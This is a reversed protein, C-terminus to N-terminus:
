WGTVETFHRPQFVFASGYEYFAASSHQYLTYDDALRWKGQVPNRHIYDLKQYLFKDTYIAKADFSKEFVKHVQGKKSERMTVDGHLQDLMDFQKQDELLKIIEYAMFRKANGILKNLDTDKAPLNIIVHLHNPMIVYAVVDALSNTHLYNFWNYVVAYGNTLDFLPLWKHCTFTCFYLSRDADHQHKIAM